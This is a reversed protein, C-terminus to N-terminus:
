IISPIPPPGGSIIPRDDSYTPKLASNRREDNTDSSDSSESSNSYQYPSPYPYFYPNYSPIQQMLPMPQPMPPYMPNYYYPPLPPQQIKPQQM